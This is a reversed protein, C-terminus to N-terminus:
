AVGRVVSLVENIAHLIDKAWPWRVRREIQEKVSNTVTTAASEDAQADTGVGSSADIAGQLAVFEAAIAGRRVGELFDFVVRTEGREIGGLLFARLMQILEGVRDGYIPLFGSYREGRPSDALRALMILYMLKLLAEVAAIYLEALQRLRDRDDAPLGDPHDRLAGDLERFTNTEFGYAM